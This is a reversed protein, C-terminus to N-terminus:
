QKEFVQEFTKPDFFLEVREGQSNTGYVEYCGNVVAVKRVRWGEAILKDRLALQPQWEEQPTKCEVNHAQVTCAIAGLAVACVVQHFKLATM